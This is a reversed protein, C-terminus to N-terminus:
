KKRLFKLAVCGSAFIVSLAALAMLAVLWDPMQPITAPPPATLAKIQDQQEQISKVIPALLDSSRFLYSGREDNQRTIMNTDRGALAEEIEQAIFGYDLRESGGNLRYSVPRLSKIFDLGLDSNEIDHKDRRDSPFTFDVQGTIATVAANGIRITNSASVEAGSGLATTNTLGTNGASPGAATGIATNNAGTTNVSLANRGMAVNNAGTTNAALASSGVATNESASSNNQLARDGVATNGYSANVRLARHGVATNQSLFVNGIIMAHAGIATNESGTTNGSLADEGM